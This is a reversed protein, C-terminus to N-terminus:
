TKEYINGRVDPSLLSERSIFLLARRKPLMDKLKIDRKTICTMENMEFLKRWFERLSM